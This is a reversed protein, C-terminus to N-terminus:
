ARRLMRLRRELLKRRWRREFDQFDHMRNFYSDGAKAAATEPLPASHPAPASPSPRAMQAYGNVPTFPTPFMDTLIPQVGCDSPCYSAPMGPDGPAGAPGEMGYPGSKGTGGIAGISGPSGPQGPQNSGKGSPGPPGKMGQPGPPGQPGKIGVGAIVTDGPQGRAGLPGKGGRPGNPGPIGPPGDVGEMGNPGQMGPMGPNGTMGREGQAGRPGPPGAPCIVCPLEPESEPQIDFGDDGARGQRGTEGPQGDPGPSGPPGPPGMPCSLTFCGRCFAGGMWNARKNRSFFLPQKAAEPRGQMIMLESWMKDSHLKLKESKMAIEELSADSKNFLVPISCLLVVISITSVAISGIAIEPFYDRTKM